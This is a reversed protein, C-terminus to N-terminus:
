GMGWFIQKTWFISFILLLTVSLIIAMLYTFLRFQPDRVCNLLSTSSPQTTITTATGGLPTLDQRSASSSDTEPGLDLTYVKPQRLFYRSKRQEKLCLQRGELIIHNPELRLLRLVADNTPLETITQNSPLVTPHRCLPCQLRNRMTSVLSLHALCEICFSHQCQLVKPTCFTNDFPNWCIPCDAAPGQSQKETM